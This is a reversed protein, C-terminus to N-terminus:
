CVMLDLKQAQMLTVVESHSATLKTQTKPQLEFSSPIDKVM